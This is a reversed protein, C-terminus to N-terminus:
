ENTEKTVMIESEHCITYGLDNDLNILILREGQLCMECDEIYMNRSELHMAGWEEETM